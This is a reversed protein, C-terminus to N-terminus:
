SKDRLYQRLLDENGEAALLYSQGNEEWAATTWNGESAFVPESRLGALTEDNDVFLHVLRGQTRRFCILTVRHGRFSLVRCGIPKLAQLGEPLAVSAPAGASDLWIKIRELDSSELELSPTVRIFSVMEGRFDALSTAPQFLGYWSSFLAVGVAIGAVAWALSRSRRLRRVTALEQAGLLRAKLGSPLPTGLLAESFFRDFDQERHFWSLLAPNQEAQELAQAIVPDAADQNGPRSVALIKRIEEENMPGVMKELRKEFPQFAM